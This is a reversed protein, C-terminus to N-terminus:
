RWTHCSVAFGYVDDCHTWQRVTSSVFLGALLVFLRQSEAAVFTV